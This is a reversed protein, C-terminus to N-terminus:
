NWNEVLRVMTEYNTMTRASITRGYPSASPMLVFGRGSGATGQELAARVKKEFESPELNEIDTIELNGFLVMNRGYNERVYELEVDGQMPPEIPDLGDAGMKSILPLINKLRGHSHIRAYGGYKQITKIIQTDYNVVYDNFLAPPLYPESAYEPGYIRWLRGPCRKAADEVAPYIIDAFKQLLRHFLQPETMAFITFDEMSFLDAARCVPDATDFAAIGADGLEKDFQLLKECDYQYAFVEFPLEVFAKLDDIDKLYHELKWVTDTDADRRTLETMKRGCISITNKVYRSKGEQWKEAALYNAAAPNDNLPKAGILRIIDTQEEALRILPRWSPDNHVNFEDPDDPNYKFSGIEYFSVAPRDVPRGELTAMLRQRRTMKKGFEM